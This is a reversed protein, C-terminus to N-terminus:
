QSKSCEEEYKRLAASLECDDKHGSDDGSFISGPHWGGCLPCRGIADDAAWEMKQLVGLLEKETETM